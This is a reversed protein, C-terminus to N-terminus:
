LLILDYRNENSMVIIVGSCSDFNYLKSHL